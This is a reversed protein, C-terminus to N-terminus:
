RLARNGPVIHMVLDEVGSTLSLWAYVRDMHGLPHYVQIKLCRLSGMDFLPPVHLLAARIFGGERPYMGDYGVVLTEIRPPIYGPIHPIVPNQVHISIDRFHLERLPVANMFIHFLNAGDAAVLQSLHVSEMGPRSLILTLAEQLPPWLTVDIRETRFEFGKLNTLSHAVPVLSRSDKIWEM